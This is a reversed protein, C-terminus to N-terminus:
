MCPKAYCVYVKRDEDIVIMTKLWERDMCYFYDSALQIVVEMADMFEFAEILLGPVPSSGDQRLEVRTKGSSAELPLPEDKSIDKVYIVYLSDEIACSTKEYVIGNKIFKDCLFRAAIEGKDINQYSYLAPYDGAEDFLRYELNAM